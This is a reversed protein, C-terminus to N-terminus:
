KLIKLKMFCSNLLLFFLFIYIRVVKLHNDFSYQVYQQSILDISSAKSWNKGLVPVMEQWHVTANNKTIYIKLTLLILSMYFLLKIYTGPSNFM